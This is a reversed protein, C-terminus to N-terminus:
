EYHRCGRYAHQGPFSEILVHFGDPGDMEPLEEPDIGREAAADLEVLCQEGWATVDERVLEAVKVQMAKVLEEAAQRSACFKYEVLISDTGWWGGEEPGGYFSVDRYLSVYCEEGTEANETLEDWAEQLM